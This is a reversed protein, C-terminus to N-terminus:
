ITPINTCMTGVKFSNFFEYPLVRPRGGVADLFTINLKALLAPELLKTPQTYQSLLLSFPINASLELMRSLPLNRQECYTRSSPALTVLVLYYVEKVLKRVVPEHTRAVQHPANPAEPMDISTLARELEASSNSSLAAPPRPIVALAASFRSELRLQEARSDVAIQKLDHIQSQLKAYSEASTSLCHGHCYERSDLM